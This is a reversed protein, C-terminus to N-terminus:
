DSVSLANASVQSLSYMSEMSPYSADTAIGCNNNNNRSMKIYGNMGWGTGWSNKVLWYDKIAGTQDSGYGVALVAHNLSQSSCMDNHYIGSHYHQFYRADIAVSVPGVTAVAQQLHLESGNPCHVNTYSNITAGVNAPNFKCTGNRAVYPYSAETDIGGNTIVYEFAKDVWGGYKCDMNDQNCDVLNSESLSVLTGTAKFHAGEM